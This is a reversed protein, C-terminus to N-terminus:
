GVTQQAREVPREFKSRDTKGSLEEAARFSVRGCAECVTREIGAHRVTVNELHECEVRAFRGGRRAFM